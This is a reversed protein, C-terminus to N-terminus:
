YGKEDLYELADAFDETDDNDGSESISRTDSQESAKSARMTSSILTHFADELEPSIDERQFYLDQPTLGDHDQNDVDLDDFEKTALILMTKADSYFAAVHLISKGNAAKPTPMVGRRLLLRLIEHHNQQVVEFLPTFGSSDPIYPDAGYSLLLELTKTRGMKAAYGLPTRGYCDKPNLNARGHILPKLTDPDDQDASAYILATRKWDDVCNVDAGSDLLAQFIEACTGMTSQAGWHLPSQNKYSLINPNAGFKLLLKTAEADGRAAAWSLATRGDSDKEDITSTSMELQQWLDINTLHLVIQHLPPFTRSELYEESDFMCRWSEMISQDALNGFIRSWAITVTTSYTKNLYHLWIFIDRLLSV